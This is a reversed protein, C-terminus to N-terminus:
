TESTIKSTQLLLPTANCYGQYECPTLKMKQQRKSIFIFEIGKMLIEGTQQSFLFYNVCFGNSHFGIIIQTLCVCMIVKDCFYFFYIYLFSVGQLKYLSERYVNEHHM